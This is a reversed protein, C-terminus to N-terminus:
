FFYGFWQFGGYLRKKDIYKWIFLVFDFEFLQICVFLVDVYYVVLFYCVIDGIIQFLVLYLYESYINWLFYKMFVQQM